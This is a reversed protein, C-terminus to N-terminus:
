IFRWDGRLKQEIDERVQDMVPKLMDLLNTIRRRSADQRQSQYSEVVANCVKAAAQPDKHTYSIIILKNGASSMNLGSRLIRDATLPNTLGPLKTIEPDALVRNLVVGDLLLRREDAVIITASNENFGQFALFDQNTELVHSATYVPEFDSWLWLSSAAALTLGVPFCWFWHKRFAVWILWPDFQFEDKKSAKAPLQPRTKILVQQNSLLNESM